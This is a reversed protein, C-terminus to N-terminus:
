IYKKEKVAANYTKHLHLTYYISLAGFVCMVFFTIFTYRRLDDFGIILSATIVYATGLLKGCKPVLGDFIGKYFVRNLPDIKASVSEKIIDYFSYKSVKSAINLLCTLISEGEFNPHHRSIGFGCLVTKGGTTFPYNIAVLISYALLTAVPWIVIVLGFTFIGFISFLKKFFPLLMLIINIMSTIICETSKYRVSINSKTPVFGPETVLQPNALYYESHAAFSFVSTATIITSFVNYFVALICLGQLWKVRYITVLTEWVTTKRGKGKKTVKNGNMPMGVYLPKKWERDLLRKILYVVGYLVILVGIFLCNFIWQTSAVAFKNIQGVTFKVAYVSVFLALNAGFLLSFLYRQSQEHTVNSSFYTMFVVSVLFTSSVELFLFFSTIFFYTLLLFPKKIFGVHRVTAWNGNFLMEDLGKKFSFAFADIVLLVIFIAYTGMCVFLFLDTGKNVGYKESFKTIMKFMLFAVLFSILEMYILLSPDDFTDFLMVDRFQRVFSYLFGIVFYCSITLFVRKREIKLIPFIKGIKTNKVKEVEEEYEEQSMVKEDMNVTKEIESHDDYFLSKTTTTSINKSINGDSVNEDERNDNAFNTQEGKM